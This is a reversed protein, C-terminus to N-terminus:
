RTKINRGNLMVLDGVQYAPPDKRAPDNFRRMREQAAELGKRSEEHVMQMWHAYITSAPNMPEETPPDVASPHFGYNAYFPSLGNGVTVSNNYAFEAM